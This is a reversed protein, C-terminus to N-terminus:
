DRTLGLRTKVQAKTYFRGSGDPAEQQGLAIVDEIVVNDTLWVVDARTLFEALDAIEGGSLVWRTAFQTRWQAKTLGWTPGGPGTDRVYESISALFEHRPLNNPADPATHLVRDLLSM